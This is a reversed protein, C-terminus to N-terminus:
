QRRVHRSYELPRDSELPAGSVLQAIKAKLTEIESNIIDRAARHQAIKKQEITHRSELVKLQDKYQRISEDKLQTNLREMLHAHKGEPDALFYGTKTKYSYWAEGSVHKGKLRVGAQWIKFDGEQKSDGHIRAQRRRGDECQVMQKEM